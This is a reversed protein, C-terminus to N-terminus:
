RRFYRTMGPNNPQYVSLTHEEPEVEHYPLPFLGSDLSIPLPLCNSGFEVRCDHYIKLHGLNGRVCAEDQESLYILTEADHARNKAKVPPAIRPGEATVLREFHCSQRM